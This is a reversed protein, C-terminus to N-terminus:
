CFSIRNYLFITEFGPQNPAKKKLNAQIITIIITPTAFSSINYGLILSIVLCLLRDFCNTNLVIESWKLSLFLM